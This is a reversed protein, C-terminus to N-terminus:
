EGHECLRVLDSPLVCQNRTLRLALYVFGLLLPKTPLVHTAAPQSAIYPGVPRGRKRGAVQVGSGSGAAGAAAPFSRPGVRKGKRNARKAPKTARKLFDHVGVHKEQCQSLYRFWLDKVRDMLSLSGQGEANISGDGPSCTTGDTQDAHVYTSIYRQVQDVLVKLCYQYVVFYQLVDPEDIGILLNDRKSKQRQFVGSKRYQRRMPGASIIKDDVEFSEAFLV